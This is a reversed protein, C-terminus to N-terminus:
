KEERYILPSKYPKGTCLIQGGKREVIMCGDEYLLKDPGEEPARIATIYGSPLLQDDWNFFDNPEM